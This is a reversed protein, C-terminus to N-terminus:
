FTCSNAIAIERIEWPAAMSFARGSAVDLKVVVERCRKSSKGQQLLTAREM